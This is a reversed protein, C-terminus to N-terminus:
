GGYGAGGPLYYSDPQSGWTNPAVSQGNPDVSYYNGGSGGGFINKLGGQVNPNNLGTILSQLANNIGGTTANNAGMIGGALANGAGITNDGVKNAVNTGTTGLFSAANQGGAVLNSINALMQQWSNSANGLYQNWNQNALGQGTTQLERLANGGLGGRANSNTIAKMGELLQYQYGPSGQFKTPDIQGAGGSGDLGLMQLVPNAGAPGGQSGDLGLLKQLQGLANNGANLYPSERAVTKDYMDLQAQTARNAADAQTKAADKSASASLLGSGISGAAAVAAGAVAWPIPNVGPYRPALVM